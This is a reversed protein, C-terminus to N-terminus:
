NWEAVAAQARRLVDRVTELDMAEPAADLYANLLDIAKGAKGTHVLCIGLDRKIQVDEPALQRLRELVRISRPMDANKVYIAKLNNLMRLVMLGLPLPSLTESTVSIDRGTAQRVVNECDQATLVRGGHFPDFVIQEAGDVAKVVFHGPLGIGEIKM